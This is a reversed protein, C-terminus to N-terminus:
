GKGAEGFSLSTGPLNISQNLLNHVQHLATLRCDIYNMYASVQANMDFEVTYFDQSKNSKLEGYEAVVDAMMDMENQLFCCEIFNLGDIFRLNEAPVQGSHSEFYNIHKFWLDVFKEHILSLDPLQQHQYPHSNRAINLPTPSNLQQSDM